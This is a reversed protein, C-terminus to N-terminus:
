DPKLLAVIQDKNSTSLKLIRLSGLTGNRIGSTDWKQYCRDAIISTTADLSNCVTKRSLLDHRLCSMSSGETYTLLKDTSFQLRWVRTDWKQNSQGMEPVIPVALFGAREGRIRFAITENYAHLDPKLLAVIQDKNSTWLACIRLSGPTGNRIQGM